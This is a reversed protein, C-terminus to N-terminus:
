RSRSSSSPKNNGPKNGQPKNASPKNGQPKNNQANSSRNVPKIPGGSIGQMFVPDLPVPTGYDEARSFAPALLFCFLTILLCIKKM